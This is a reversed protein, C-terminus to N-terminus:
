GWTPQHLVFTWERAPRSWLTSSSIWGGAFALKKLKPFTLLALFRSLGDRGALAFCVTAKAVAVVVIHSDQVAFGSTVPADLPVIVSSGPLFLIEHALNGSLESDRIADEPERFLSGPADM